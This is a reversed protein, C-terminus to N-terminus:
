LNFATGHPNRAAKPPARSADRFTVIGGGEARDLAEKATAKGREMLGQGLNVAESFPRMTVNSLGKETVFASAM